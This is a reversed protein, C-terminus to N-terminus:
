KSDLLVQGLRVFLDRRDDEALLGLERIINSVTGLGIVGWAALDAKRGSAAPIDSAIRQAIFQHFHRYMRGLAARTEPDDTESLGAFVIRYLKFEGHHEAEYALLKRAPFEHNPQALLKMWATMSSDYVHDIAALFMAKKSPWLRYLINERVRCRRALEATTARHYGLEAFAAAIIHLLVQPRDSSTASSRSM